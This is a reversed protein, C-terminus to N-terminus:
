RMPQVASGLRAALGRVITIVSKRPLAQMASAAEKGASHLKPDGRVGPWIREGTLPRVAAVVEDVTQYREDPHKALLKDVVAALPGPIQPAIKALRPPPEHVHKLITTSSTSGKFPVRGALMEYLVV